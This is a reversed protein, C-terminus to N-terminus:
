MMLTTSKKLSEWTKPELKHKQVHQVSDGDHMNVGYTNHLVEKSTPIVRHGVEYWLINTVEDNEVCLVRIIERPNGNTDPKTKYSDVLFLM